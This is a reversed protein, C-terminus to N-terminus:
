NVTEWYGSVGVGIDEKSTSDERLLYFTLIQPHEFYILTPQNIRHLEWPASPFVFGQAIDLSHRYPFDPERSRIEVLATSSTRLYGKSWVNEIVLRMGEPVTVEVSPDESYAEFIPDDIQMYKFFYHQFREKVVEVQAPGEDPPNQPKGATALDGGLVLVVALLALFCVSILTSHVKLRNMETDGKEFRFM